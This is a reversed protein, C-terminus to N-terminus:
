PAENLDEASEVGLEALVAKADALDQLINYWGQLDTAMTRLSQVRLLLLPYHYHLIDTVHIFSALHM